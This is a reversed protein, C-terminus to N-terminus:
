QDAVAPPREHREGPARQRMSRCSAGVRATEGAEREQRLPCREARQHTLTRGAGRCRQRRACLCSFVEPPLRARHWRRRRSTVMAMAGSRLRTGLARAAGVDAAAIRGPAPVVVGVLNLHEPRPRSYGARPSRDPILNAQCVSSSDEHGVCRSTGTVCRDLEFLTFGQTSGSVAARSNRRILLADRIPGTIGPLRIIRLAILGVVLDIRVLYIVRLRFRALRYLSRGGPPRRAFRTNVLLIDKGATRNAVATLPPRISGHHHLSLWAHKPLAPPSEKHVM